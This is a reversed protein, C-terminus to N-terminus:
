LNYGSIYTSMFDQNLIQSLPIWHLSLDQYKTGEFNDQFTMNIPEVRFFPMPYFITLHNDAIVEMQTANRTNMFVQMAEKVKKNTFLNFNSNTALQDLVVRKVEKPVALSALESPVCLGASKSVLSRAATFLINPENYKITSGFGAYM